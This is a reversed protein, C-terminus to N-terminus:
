GEVLELSHGVLVAVADGDLRPPHDVEVLIGFEGGDREAREFGSRVFPDRIMSSLKTTSDHKAQRM